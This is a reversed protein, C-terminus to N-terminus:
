KRQELIADLAALTRSFWAGDGRLVIPNAPNQSGDVILAVTDRVFQIAATESAIQTHLEALEREHSACGQCYSM